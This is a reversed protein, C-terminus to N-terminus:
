ITGAIVVATLLEHEHSTNTSARHRLHCIVSELNSAKSEQRLEDESGPEGVEEDVVFGRLSRSCTM